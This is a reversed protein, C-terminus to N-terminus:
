TQLPDPELLFSVYTCQGWGSQVAAVAQMCPLQLSEVQLCKSLSNFCFFFPPFLFPFLGLFFFFLSQDLGVQGAWPHAEM